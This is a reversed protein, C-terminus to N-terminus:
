LEIVIDSEMMRSIFLTNEKATETLTRKGEYIEKLLRGSKENYKKVVSHLLFLVYYEHDMEVLCVADNLQYGTKEHDSEPSKWYIDINRKIFHGDKETLMKLISMIKFYPLIAENEKMFQCFSKDGDISDSPFLCQSCWKSVSCTDCQREKVVNQHISSVNQVLQGFSDTVEGIKNGSCCACVDNGTISVQRMQCLSCNGTYKCLNAPNWDDLLGTYFRHNEQLDKAQARYSDMATKSDMEKVPLRNIGKLYENNHQWFLADGTRKVFDQNPIYRSEEYAQSLCDDYAPMDFKLKKRNDCYFHKTMRLEDIQRVVTGNLKINRNVFDLAAPNDEDIVIMDMADAMNQDKFIGTILSRYKASITLIFLDVNEKTINNTYLLDYVEKMSYKEYYTRVPLKVPSLEKVVGYDESNEFVRSKPFCTMFCSSVGRQAQMSTVFNITKQADALGEFPLGFNISFIPDLGADKATKYKSVLMNIFEDPKENGRIKGLAEIVPESASEFGIVIKKFNNRAMSALIEDTLLDGRVCCWFRFNYNRKEMEHLLEETRKSSMSFCDDYFRIDCDSGGIFQSIYDLEKIINSVKHIYFRKRDEVYSCFSCNGYCGLSSIMGVNVAEEPPIMGESYPLGLDDLSYVHNVLPTQVLEDQSQYCINEVNECAEGNLLKELSIHEHRLLAADFYMEKTLNNAVYEASPGMIYIKASSKKEKLKNAVLRTLYYNYESIYFVYHSCELVSLEDIYDSYKESERNIYQISNIGKKQLYCRIHACTIQYEAGTLYDNVSNFYSFVCDM